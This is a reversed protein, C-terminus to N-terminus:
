SGTTTSPLPAVTSSGARASPLASGCATSAFADLSARATAADQFRYQHVAAEMRDLDPRLDEPTVRKLDRVTTVYQDVAKDLSRKFADPDSVNARAVSAATEDLRAVLPCPSAKPTSQKDGGSGSSCAGLWAVACVSICCALRKRVGDM